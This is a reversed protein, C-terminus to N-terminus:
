QARILNGQPDLEVISHREWYRWWNRRSIHARFPQGPYDPGGSFFATFAGRDSDGSGPQGTRTPDPTEWSQMPLYTQASLPDICMDCHSLDGLRHRYRVPVLKGNDWVNVPGFGGNGSYDLLYRKSTETVVCWTQTM